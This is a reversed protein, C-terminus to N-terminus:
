DAQRKLRVRARLGQEQFTVGFEGSVIGGFEPPTTPGPKPKGPHGYATSQMTQWKENWTYRGGAPDVLRIKWVREHLRVPDKDPYRRKWENLIPLNAWSRRQMALRYDSSFVSSIVQVARPDIKLCLSEGIWATQAAVPQGSANAALYVAAAAERALRRDIARKLLAESLTVILADGSVSYCIALNEVEEQQRRARASPTVKVYPEDNYTLTEWRTMDPATQDIFARAAALFATLKLGSAVEVHVAVPIRGLNAQIFDNRENAPVKALESWFPDDDFYVAVSEGLWGLPSVGRTSRMMGAAFNGVQQVLPSNKNIALVIHALADHPDGAQPAIQAGRSVAILQRYRSGGILPMVTLDGSLQEKHLGLRVGIPDFVGTWNREYGTRWRVYADVEGKTVKDVRMEAIPTAFALSGVTDSLVGRPSLSLQDGAALPLDTYVPGSRFGGRALRDMNTAQLESIVAM